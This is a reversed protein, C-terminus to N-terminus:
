HWPHVYGRSRGADCRPAGGQDGPGVSIDASSDGDNCWYQYGNNWDAYVFNRLQVRSDDHCNHGSGNSWTDYGTRCAQHTWAQTLAVVRDYYQLLCVQGMNSNSACSGHNCADVVRVWSNQWQFARTASHRGNLFLSYSIHKDRLEIYYYYGGSQSVNSGEAGSPSGYAVDGGPQEVLLGERRLADRAREDQAAYLDPAQRGFDTLADLEPALEAALAPELQAAVEGPLARVAELALEFLHANSGAPADADQQELETAWRPEVFADGGRRVYFAHGQDSTFRADIEWAPSEPDNQYIEPTAQGRLAELYIVVDGRRYAASLAGPAAGLITLGERLTGSGRESVDAACGALILLTSAATLQTTTRM